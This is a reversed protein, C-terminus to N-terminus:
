FVNISKDKVGWCKQVMYDRINLPSCNFYDSIAGWFVNISKDKVGRFEL